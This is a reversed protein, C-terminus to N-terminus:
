DEKSHQKECIDQLKEQRLKSVIKDNYPLGKEKMIRRVEKEVRGKMIRSVTSEEGKIKKQRNKEIKEQSPRRYPINPKFTLEKINREFEIDNRLKTNRKKEASKSKAM